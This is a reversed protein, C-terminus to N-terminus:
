DYAGAGAGAAEGATVSASPSVTPIARQHHIDLLSHGFDFNGTWARYVACVHNAIAQYM